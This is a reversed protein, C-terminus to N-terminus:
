IQRGGAEANIQVPAEAPSKVAGVVGQSMSESSFNRSRLAFRFTVFGDSPINKNVTPSGRNLLNGILSRECLSVNQV